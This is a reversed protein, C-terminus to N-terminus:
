ALVPVFRSILDAIEETRETPDFESWVMTPQGSDSYCFASASGSTQIQEVFSAAGSAKVKDFALQIDPTSFHVASEREFRSPDSAQVLVVIAGRTEGAQLGVTSENRWLVRLGLTGTYWQEAAAKSRVRLSVMRIRNLIAEGM